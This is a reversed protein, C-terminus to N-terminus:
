RVEEVMRKGMAALSVVEDSLNASAVAMPMGYIVCSQEDQTWIRSGQKKLMKLLLIVIQLQILKVKQITIYVLYIVVMVTGVEQLIM